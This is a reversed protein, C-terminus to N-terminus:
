RHVTDALDTTVVALYSVTYTESRELKVTEIAESWGSRLGTISAVRAGESIAQRRVASAYATQATHSIVLVADDRRLPRQRWAFTAASSSQVERNIDSFLFTGMEAAHQSTGTGVLFLRRCPQIREITEGIDLDLVSRLLQGQAAITQSLATM